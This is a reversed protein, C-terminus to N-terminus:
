PYILWFILLPQVILRLNNLTNKWGYEHNWQKHNSFDVDRNEQVETEIQCSKNLGLFEPFNLSIMTYICFITEWWREIYKFNTFRYDTWGLEQKCAAFVM